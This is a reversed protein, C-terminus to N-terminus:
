AKAKKTGLLEKGKKTLCVSITDPHSVHKLGITTIYRSDKRYLFKIDIDEKQCVEIFAEKDWYGLEAQEKQLIKLVRKIKTKSPPKAEKKEEKVSEPM